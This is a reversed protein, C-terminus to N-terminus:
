SLDITSGNAPRISYSGECKHQSTAQTTIPKEREELIGGFVRVDTLISFSGALSNVTMFGDFQDGRIHSDLEARSSTGFMELQDVPGSCRLRGNAVVMRNYEAGGNLFNSEHIRVHLPGPEGGTGSYSDINDVVDVRNGRGTLFINDIKTFNNVTIVGNNGLVILERCGERTTQSNGTITFTHPCRAVIVRDFTGKVHVAATTTDIFLTTANCTIPTSATGFNFRMGKSIRIQDFVIGALNGNGNTIDGNVDSGFEAIAQNLPATGGYSAPRAASGSGSFKLNVHKSVDAAAVVSGRSDYKPLVM